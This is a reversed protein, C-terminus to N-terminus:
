TVEKFSTVMFKGYKGKLDPRWAGIGVYKGGHELADKLVEIPIGDDLVKIKFALEWDKMLPRDIIIRGRTNRNIGTTRFVEWKQNKHIIAMPEVEVACGILKSYNAKGKGKINFSKGANVMMGEIHTAPTYIQGDPTKYLKDDIIPDKLAGSRKKSKGELEAIIFRNFLLPSIGKIEVKVEYM